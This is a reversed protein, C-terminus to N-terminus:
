DYNIKKGKRKGEIGLPIDAGILKNKEFLFGM